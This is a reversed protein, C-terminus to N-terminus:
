PTGIFHVHCQAQQVHCCQETYGLRSSSSGGGGIPGHIPRDRTNYVAVMIKVEFRVVVVLM